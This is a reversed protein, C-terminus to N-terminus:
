PEAGPQSPGTLEPWCMRPSMGAHMLQTEFHVVQEEAVHSLFLKLCFSRWLAESESSESWWYACVALIRRFGVDPDRPESCPLLYESTACSSEKGPRHQNPSAAEPSERGVLGLM